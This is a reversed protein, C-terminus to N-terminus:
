SGSPKPRAALLIEVAVDDNIQVIGTSSPPQLDLEQWTFNTKGLLYIVDGDDRGGKMEFTIPFEQGRLELTGAVPGKTVAGGLPTEDPVVTQEGATFTAIQSNPFMTNKIYRDRSPQDSSLKWLDLRITSPRGDLHIEGTLASTSVVADNPLPMRGIQEGVTFTAKSGTGVIFNV